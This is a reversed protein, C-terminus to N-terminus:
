SKSRLRELAVMAEALDLDAPSTIKINRASGEVFATRIGATELIELLSPDGYVNAADLREYARKVAGSSFVVPKQGVLVDGPAHLIEGDRRYLYETNVIGPAAAGPERAADLLQRVSAATAFPHVVDHLILWPATAAGILKRTTDSRTSGGVMISIGPGGVLSLAREFDAAPVAVLISEAIDRFLAISRELLTQGGLQVFAKPGLGLRTGGGAAQILAQAAPPSRDKPDSMM